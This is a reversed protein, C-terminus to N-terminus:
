RSRFSRTAKHYAKKIEKANEYEGLSEEPILLLLKRLQGKIVKLESVLNELVATQKKETITAM